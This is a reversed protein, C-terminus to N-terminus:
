KKRKTEKGVQQIEIKVSQVMTRAWETSSYSQAARVRNSMHGTRQEKLGGTM